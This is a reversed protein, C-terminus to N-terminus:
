EWEQWGYEEPTTTLGIYGTCTRVLPPPGEEINHDINYVKMNRSVMRMVMDIPAERFRDPTYNYYDYEATTIEENNIMTNLEVVSAHIVSIVKRRLCRFEKKNYTRAPQVNRRFLWNIKTSPELISRKVVQRVIDNFSIRESASM